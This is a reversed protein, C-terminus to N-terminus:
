WIYCIQSSINVGKLGEMLKYYVVIPFNGIGNAPDLWKLNPDKWVNKPLKDLMECVLEVPTFVEGFLKKEKDKVTLYKRVIELINEDILEKGGGTMNTNLTKIENNGPCKPVYKPERNKLSNNILGFKDRISCFYNVFEDLKNDEKITKLFDVLINRYQNLKDINENITEKNDDEINLHKKNLYSIHCDIIQKNNKCIYKLKDPEITYSEFFKILEEINNESCSTSIEKKLIESEFLVFLSFVDKIYSIILEKKDKIDVETDKEPKSSNSNNNNIQKMHSPQNLDNEPKELPVRLPPQKPKKGIMVLQLNNISYYYKNIITDDIMSLVEKIQKEQTDEITDAFSEITDIKLKKILDVYLKQKTKDEGFGLIGNINFNFLTETFKARKSVVDINKKGRILIIIM